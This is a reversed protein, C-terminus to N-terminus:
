AHAEQCIELYARLWEFRDVVQIFQDQYGLQTATETTVWYFLDVASQLARYIDSHNYSAFTKPLEILLRPDAWEDLRLDRYRVPQTDECRQTHIHWTAMRILLMQLTVDCIWKAAYRKGSNIKKIAKFAFLLFEDVTALLEALSPMVVSTYFSAFASQMESALGDRDVLTRFGQHLASAIVYFRKVSATPPPQLGSFYAFWSATWIEQRLRQLPVISFDVDLDPKFVVYYDESFTFVM